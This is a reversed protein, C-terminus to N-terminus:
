KKNTAKIKKKNEKKASKAMFSVYDEVSSEDLDAFTKGKAIADKVSFYISSFMTNLFLDSNKLYDIIHAEIDRKIRERINQYYKVEAQAAKVLEAQENKILETQAKDVDVIEEKNKKFFIGFM